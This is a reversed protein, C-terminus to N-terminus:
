KLLYNCYEMYIKKDKYGIVKIKNDGKKLRITDWQFIINKLSKKKFGMNIDNVFLQVKDLNSYVKVSTIKNEREVLRSNTIHLVPLKSWNAKYFYYADKKTKRDHSVLGKHNIFDRDGRQVATWSFDFMNWIYKCWIDDRNKIDNWVNEHYFTQYQEPFFKGSIPEPREFDEKQQTICGGAGYEAIGLKIKPFKKHIKDARKSYGDKVGDGYWGYYLNWAQADTVTHLDFADTNDVFLTYRTTDLTKVHKNLIELDKKPIRIENGLGWCYISTQNFNQKIMETLQLKCSEMYKPNDTTYPPINPIEAWVMIGNNSFYDYFEEAQQYHALRVSTVGLENILDFDKKHQETSLAPGYGEIEQHRNVGYLPYAEGNLFFGKKLDITFSRLGISQNVVDIETGNKTLRISCTYKYPDKRGQWLHPSDLSIRKKFLKNKDESKITIIESSNSVKKGKADLLVIELGYNEDLSKSSLIVSIDLDAKKSTIATQEIYVGSSAYDLPSISAQQTTFYTVPRYIGGFIPFLSESPPAIDRSPINSVKVAIENQIGIKLANTIEFCFAAYGGEHKGIFKGNVFVESILSVAEFRIYHRKNNQVLTDKFKYLYTGVGHYSNVGETLVDKANWTHPITVNKWITEKDNDIGKKWFDAKSFKWEKLVKPNRKTLFEQANLTTGCIILIIIYAAIKILKM